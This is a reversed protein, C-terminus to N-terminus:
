FREALMQGNEFLFPKCDVTINIEAYNSFYEVNVHARGDYYKSTDGIYLKCKKGHVKDIFNGCTNLNDDLAGKRIFSLEIERNEYTRGTIEESLDLEGQMGPVSISYKRLEPTTKKCHLLFLEYDSSNIDNFRINM